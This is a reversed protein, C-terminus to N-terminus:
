IASCILRSSQMSSARKLRTKYPKLSTRIGAALLQYNNEIEALGIRKGAPLDFFRKLREQLPKAETGDINGARLKEELAALKPSYVQQLSKGGVTIIAADIERGLREIKFLAAEVVTPSNGRCEFTFQKASSERCSTETAIQQLKDFFDAQYERALSKATNIKQAADGLKTALNQDLTQAYAVSTAFTVLLLVAPLLHKLKMKIAGKLLEVCETYLCLSYPVKPNLPTSFLSSNSFELVVNGAKYRRLYLIRGCKLM